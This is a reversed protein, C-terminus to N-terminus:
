KCSAKLIYEALNEIKDSYKTANETQLLALLNWLLFLTEHSFCILSFFGTEFPFSERIKRLHRHKSPFNMARLDLV